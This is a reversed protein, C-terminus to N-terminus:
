REKDGERVQVLDKSEHLVVPYGNLNARKSILVVYCRKILYFFSTSDARM